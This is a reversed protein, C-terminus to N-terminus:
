QGDRAEGRAADLAARLDPNNVGDLMTDPAIAIVCGKFWWTRELWDLRAKDERLAALEEDEAWGSNAALRERLQDREGEVRELRALLAEIDTRPFSVRVSYSWAMGGWVKSEEMRNRVRALAADTEDTPAM